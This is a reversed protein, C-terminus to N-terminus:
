AVLDFLTGFGAGSKFRNGRRRSRGLLVVVRVDFLLERQQAGDSGLKDPQQFNATPIRIRARDQHCQIAIFFRVDFYVQSTYAPFRPARRSSGIRQRTRRDLVWSTTRPTRRHFLDGLLRAGFSALWSGALAGSGYRATSRPLDTAAGAATM